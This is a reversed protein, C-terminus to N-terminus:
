NPLIIAVSKLYNLLTTIFIYQNSLIRIPLQSDLVLFYETKVVLVLECGVVLLQGKAIVLVGKVVLIAKILLFGAVVVLGPQPVLEKVLSKVLPIVHSGVLSKVLPIVHSGVLSKVLSKILPQRAHAFKTAMQPTLKAIIVAPLLIIAQTIVQKIFQTVQIVKTFQQPQLPTTKTFPITLSHATPSATTNALL